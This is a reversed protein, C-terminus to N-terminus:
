IRVSSVTSTVIGGITSKAWVTAGNELILKEVDFVFTEGHPLSLNSMVQTGVGYAGSAPVVYVDIDTDVAESTNCFFITTIANENVSSFITTPINALQTNTIM